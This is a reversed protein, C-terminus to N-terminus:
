LCCVRRCQGDGLRAGGAWPVLPHERPKTPPRAPPTRHRPRKSTGTLTGLPTELTSRQSPPTIRLLRTLTADAADAAHAQSAPSRFDRTLAERLEREENASQPSNLWAFDHRLEAEPNNEHSM